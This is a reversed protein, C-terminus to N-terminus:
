NLVGSCDSLEYTPKLRNLGIEDKVKAIASSDVALKGDENPAVSFSLDIQLTSDTSGEIVDKFQIGINGDSLQTLKAEGVFYLLAQGQATINMPVKSLGIPGEIDITIDVHTPQGFNSGTTSCKIQSISEASVSFSCVTIIISLILKKM